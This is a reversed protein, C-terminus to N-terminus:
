AAPDTTPATTRRGMMWYRGAAWRPLSTVHPWYPEGFVVQVVQVRTGDWDYVRWVGRGILLNSKSVEFEHGYDPQYTSPNSM